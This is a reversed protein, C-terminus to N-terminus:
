SIVPVMSGAPLMRFIIDGLHHRYNKPLEGSIESSMQLLEKRNTKLHDIYQFRDVRVNKAVMSLDNRILDVITFHEALEKKNKLLKTKADPLAADITGKMPFSSIRGDSIKVYTEPSYVVFHDKFWLKYKARSREFIDIMGFNTDLRSPMTLNLLFSNGHLINKRVLNFAERYREFSVPHITFTLEKSSDPAKKEFNSFGNVEYRIEGPDIEHLPIAFPQKMEFDIVFLFPIGRSGLESMFSKTNLM